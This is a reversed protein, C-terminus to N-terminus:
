LTRELPLPFASLKSHCEGSYQEHSRLLRLETGVKGRVQCAKPMTAADRLCVCCWGSELTKCLSGRGESQWGKGGYGDNAAQWCQYHVHSPISAAQYGFTHLGRSYFFISHHEPWRWLTKDQWPRYRHVHQTWHRCASRWSRSSRTAEPIRTVFANPRKTRDWSTQWVM